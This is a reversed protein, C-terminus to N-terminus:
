FFVRRMYWQVVSTGYLNAIYAAMAIFPGFPIMDKRGKLRLLLLIAGIGGGLLFSLFIALLLHQWGLWLGLVTVFKIDGGGLGGRSVLAIVLFLSGGMLSALIMDIVDVGIFFVNLVMGIIALYILVRDFILQHDYDIFAITILFATLLWAKVLAPSLGLVQYCWVFLVATLV